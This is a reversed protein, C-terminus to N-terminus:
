VISGAILESRAPGSVASPRGSPMTRGTPAVVAITTAVSREITSPSSTGFFKASARGRWVAMRTIGNWVAKM